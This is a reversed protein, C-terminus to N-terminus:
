TLLYIVYPFDRNRRALYQIRDSIPLPMRCVVSVNVNMAAGTLVTNRILM